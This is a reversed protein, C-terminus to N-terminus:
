WDSLKSKPPPKIPKSTTVRIVTEAKGKPGRPGRRGRRGDRGDRGDRGRDGKKGESGRDGKEGRYRKPNKRMEQRTVETITKIVEASFSQGPEGRDGKPGPDGKFMDPNSNVWQQIHHITEEKSPQKVRESKLKAKVDIIQANLRRNEKELEGIGFQVTAWRTLIKIVKSTVYAALALGAVALVLAQVPHRAAWREFRCLWRDQEKPQMDKPHQVLLETAEKQAEKIEKLDRKLNSIEAEIRERDRDVFRFNPPLWFENQPEPGPDPETRLSADDILEDLLTKPTQGRHPRRPSIPM